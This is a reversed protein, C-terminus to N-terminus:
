LSYCKPCGNPVTFDSISNKDLFVPLLIEDVLRELRSADLVARHLLMDLRILDFPLTYIV